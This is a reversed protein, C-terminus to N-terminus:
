NSFESANLLHFGGTCHFRVEVFWLYARSVSSFKSSGTRVKRTSAVNHGFAGARLWYIARGDLTRGAIRHYGGTVINQFHARDLKRELTLIRARGKHLATLVCELAEPIAEGSTHSLVAKLYRPTTKQRLEGLVGKREAAAYLGELLAASTDGIQDGAGTSEQM